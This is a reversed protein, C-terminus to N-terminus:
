EAFTQPVAYCGASKTPANALMEDRLYSPKIIDERFVNELDISLSSPKVGSTDVESLKNAMDIVQSMKRTLEAKESEKVELMALNAIYEIEKETITM